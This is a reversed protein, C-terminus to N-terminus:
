IKKLLLRQCESKKLDGKDRLAIFYQDFIDGLRIIKEPYGHWPDDANKPVPFFGLKEGGHGLVALKGDNIDLGLLGRDATRHSNDAEEFVCFQHPESICWRTKDKKVTATSNHDPKPQYYKGSGTPGYM